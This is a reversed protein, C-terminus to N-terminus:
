KVAAPDSEPPDFRASPASIKVNKRLVKIEIKHAPKRESTGLYTLYLRNRLQAFIDRVKPDKRDWDRAEFFLGGTERAIKGLYSTRQVPLARFGTDVAIVTVNSRQAEAIAERADLHSQNDDGDSFVFM